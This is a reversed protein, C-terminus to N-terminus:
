FHCGSESGNDILPTYYFRISELAPYILSITCYKEGGLFTTAREIPQFLNCLKKIVGVGLRKFVKKKIKEL